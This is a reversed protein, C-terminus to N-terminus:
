KKELLMQSAINPNEVIEDNVIIGDALKIIRRAFQAVFGDHTVLIVTIGKQNLSQLIQMIELGSKSDLNGTPEDALIISPENTLARAIAVRQQQGGSLETPKHNIRDKLGVATLMEQAKKMREKYSAGAYVLPLSVNFLATNRSLLNFNQFVFGIKKNRLYALKKKNMKSVEIDEIWMKGETPTDLLGILHMLTSKGSGSPGMIAVSENEKIEINVGNLAKVEEDGMKYIKKLNETKILM